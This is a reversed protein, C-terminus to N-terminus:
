RTAGETTAAAARTAASFLHDTARNQLPTVVTVQTVVSRSETPYSTVVLSLRTPATSRSCHALTRRLHEPLLPSAHTGQAKAGKRSGQLDVALIPARTPFGASHEASRVGLTPSRPASERKQAGQEGPASGSRTM